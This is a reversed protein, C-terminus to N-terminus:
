LLWLLAEKTKNPLNYWRLRLDGMSSPNFLIFVPRRSVRRGQPQM